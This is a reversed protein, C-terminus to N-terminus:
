SIRAGNMSLTFENGRTESVELDHHPEPTAAGVHRKPSWSHEQATSVDAPSQMGGKSLPKKLGLDDRVGDITTYRTTINRPHMLKYQTSHRRCNTAETVHIPM